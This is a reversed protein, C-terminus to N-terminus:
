RPERIVGGRRCRANEAEAPAGPGVLLDLALPDHVLQESLDLALALPLSLVAACLVALVLLFLWLLLLLLLVVHADLREYLLELSALGLLRGCVFAEPLGGVGVAVFVVLAVRGVGDLSADVLELALALAM